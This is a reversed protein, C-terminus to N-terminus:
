RQPQAPDAVARQIDGEGTSLAAVPVKRRRIQDDMFRTTSHRHKRALRDAIVARIYSMTHQNGRPTFTMGGHDRMEAIM